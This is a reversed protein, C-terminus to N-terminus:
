GNLDDQKTVVVNTKSPRVLINIFGGFVQVMVKKTPVFITDEINLLVRYFHSVVSTYVTTVLLVFRAITTTIYVSTGVVAVLVKGRAKILTVISVVPSIVLTRFLSLAIRLTSTTTATITLTRTFFFGYTIAVASTVSM